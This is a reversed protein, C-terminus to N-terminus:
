RIFEKPNKGAYYYYISKAIEYDYLTEKYRAESLTQKNLADLYAINDVLGAEFKRVIVRYTSKAARLASKASKLKARITKLRSKALKFQMKQERIAYSKRSDLAMKQYMVAEREKKMKGNDFLRMSVSLMLENQHDPLFSDGEIGPMGVTNGYHSQTYTDEIRVHPLYGADIAHANQELAQANAQLIKSKEYPEFSIRKPEQLRNNQLHEAPLGSLLKLNEQNTQLILKTNEIRYQNDDYVAQLKDIEEQTSLGALNFKRVRKIQACLEKSQEYMAHLMAQLKKISYYHNVINLTISKKFADKEFLSAQYAFNKADVLASKRGGDYIDMGLSAFGITTEGPAVLSNPNTRSYSAGIDLTPWYASEGAEIEILKAKSQMEKAQIQHNHKNAHNILEQLSYSKAFVFFPVIMWLFVRM